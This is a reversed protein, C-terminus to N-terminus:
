GSGIQARIPRSKIWGKPFPADINTLLILAKRVRARIAPSSESALPALRSVVRDREAPHLRVVICLSAIAWSRAFVSVDDLLGLLATTIEDRAGDVMALHGLAMAVHMKVMPVPDREALNTLRDLYQSVWEPRSRAIKEVADAARGRIVDDTQDLGAALEDLLEPHALVFEAVQDSLGDSRLDGGSLWELIQNM